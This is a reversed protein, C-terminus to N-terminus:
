KVEQQKLNKLRNLAKTRGEKWVPVMPTLWYHLFSATLVADIHKIFKKLGKKDMSDLFQYNM